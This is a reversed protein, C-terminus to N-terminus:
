RVLDECVVVRVTHQWEALADRQDTMEAIQQRLMVVDEDPVAGDIKVYPKAAWGEGSPLWLHVWVLEDALVGIPDYGGKVATRTLAGIVKYGKGPGQRLNTGAADTSSLDAAIFGDPLSSPATTLWHFNIMHEQWEQATSVDYDGWGGTTGWCFVTAWKLYAREAMTEQFFTRLDLAMDRESTGMPRWPKSAPDLERFWESAGLESVGIEIGPTLGAIEDAKSVFWDLTRNDNLSLLGYLHMGIQMGYKVAAAYIPTFMGPDRPWGVSWHPGIIKVGLDYGAKFVEITRRILLRDDALQAAEQDGDPLGNYTPENDYALKLNPPVEGPVYGLWALMDQVWKDGNEGPVRHRNDDEKGYRRAVVLMKPYREILARILAAHGVVVVAMPRLADLYALLKEWSSFPDTINIGIAAREKDM